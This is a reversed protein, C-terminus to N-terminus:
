SVLIIRVDVVSNGKEHIILPNLDIEQIQPFDLALQAVKLITEKLTEIDKMTRGRLGTLLPYGKIEKIMEDIDHESLPCVRYSVDKLVEVFIGGLGFMIVPGFQPDRVMGLICEQGKPAMPLLLMGEIESSSVNNTVNELIKQYAVIVESQSKINLIVGGVETKHIIKTSVIKLAIPYGVRNAAQIAEDVTTVFESQPLWVHYIELLERAESELLNNRGLQDIKTFLHQAEKFSNGNTSKFGTKKLHAQKVAFNSLHSLCESARDSSSTVFIGNEKLIELSRISENGFSTHVVIPKKYRAMLRGLKYSTNEELERVHSSIIEGYGGFFGTIYLSDILKEEMLIHVIKVIDEPREEASAGYDVPNSVSVNPLVFPRIKAQTEDPLLPVNLRYKEMNDSAISYDGGGESLIAVNTGQPFPLQAFCIAVDFLEDVNYVRIIGAQKFAANIVDEDGTMSGTHSIAARAGSKSKGVKLAIIPKNMSVERAKQIFKQGENIGELYLLIVKTQEDENLLALYEHLNVDIANGISIIKSFGIKQLKAYHTLSVIINGSQAIISLPGKKITPVGLLNLKASASFIGNSNPGILKTRHSKIISLLDEELMMGTVGIERFGATMIVIGQVGKKVCDSVVQLVFRIPIIIMVLDVSEEIDLISSYVKEGFLLKRRPNVLYIQGEFGGEILRRARREGLKGPTESAGIIAVSQPNFIRALVDDM